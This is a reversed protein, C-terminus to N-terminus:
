ANVQHMMAMCANTLTDCKSHVFNSVIRKNFLTSDVKNFDEMVSSEGNYEVTKNNGFDTFYVKGTSDVMISDLSENRRQRSVDGDSFLQYRIDGEGELTFQICIEDIHDLKGKSFEIVNNSELKSFDFLTETDPIYLINDRPNYDIEKAVNGTIAIISITNM